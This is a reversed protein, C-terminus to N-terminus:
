IVARERLARLEDDSYGLLDRYIAENDAGLLPPSAVPVHSASLKVPWGPITVPGQVPHDVTVFMERQRLFEDRQLEGTDNVAGVAVGADGLRRMVTAKDHRLTWDTVLADIEERHAFRSESREFRDVGILDARGIVRLLRYWHENNARTTYIFCYDNPGGGKCPYVGSPATSALISGNGSRIPPKGWMQHSAYSMRCFNIVAEQMAVEVLQGQGTFQRQYLAAVVGLACHLGTGSDGITPGCRLPEHEPKGTISLAGGAAQAIMDFALYKEHPGGSAFGKIRAYVIRPNIARVEEYGFGLREIVGPAFNEAFVDAEAILRRLLAKGEEQKLDATVSRKNANLIMFYYSDLDPAAASARRGQEGRGPAEVKIVEAGLWALDQTCSPGAEFQTLDVIRIGQLATHQTPASAARLTQNM